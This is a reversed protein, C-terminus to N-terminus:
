LSISSPIFGSRDIEPLIKEPAFGEERNRPLELGLDGREREAVDVGEAGGESGLVGIRAPV